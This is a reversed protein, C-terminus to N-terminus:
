VYQKLSLENRIVSVSLCKCVIEVLLLYTSLFM